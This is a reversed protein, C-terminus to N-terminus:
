VKRMSVCGIMNIKGDKAKNRYGPVGEIWPKGTIAKAHQSDIGQYSNHHVDDQTGV